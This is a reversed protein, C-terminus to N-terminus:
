ASRVAPVTKRDLFHSTKFEKIEFVVARNQRGSVAKYLTRSISSTYITVVDSEVKATLCHLCDTNVCVTILLSRLLKLSTESRLARSWRRRLGSDNFSTNGAKGRLSCVKLNEFDGVGVAKQIRKLRRKLLRHLSPALDQVAQDRGHNRAKRRDAPVRRYGSRVRHRPLSHCPRCLLL